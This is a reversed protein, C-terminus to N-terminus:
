AKELTVAVERNWPSIDSLALEVTTRAVVWLIAIRKSLLSFSESATTPRDAPSVM